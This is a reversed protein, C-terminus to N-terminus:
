FALNSLYTSLANSLEVPANAIFLKEGYHELEKKFFVDSIDFGLIIEIMKAINAKCINYKSSNVYDPYSEDIQSVIYISKYLSLKHHSTTDLNLKSFKSYLSRFDSAEKDRQQIALASERQYLIIELPSFNEQSLQLREQCNLIFGMEQSVRKVVENQAPTPKPINAMKVLMGMLENYRDM